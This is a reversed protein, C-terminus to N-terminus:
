EKRGSSPRDRDTPGHCSSGAIRFVQRAIVKSPEGSKMWLLSAKGLLFLRLLLRQATSAHTCYYLMQSRRYEVQIGPPMGGPQSGGGLHTVSVSPVFHVGWGANRIRRCLDADEFYMFYREDFGGILQFLDRRVALAAATVWDVSTYEHESYLRMRHKMKWESLITPWKGLSYQPTGDPNVLALGAAGCRPTADFYRETPTLVDASVSTDNNLFLLIQGKAARAGANNAAGFGRNMPLSIVELWSFEGTWALAGPETSCNDVLIVQHNSAGHEALTRIARRTLDSRNYQVLIVTVM